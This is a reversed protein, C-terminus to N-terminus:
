TIPSPQRCSCCCFLRPKVEVLAADVFAGCADIPQLSKRSLIRRRSKTCPRFNLPVVFQGLSMQQSLLLAGLLRHRDQPLKLTFGFRGVM